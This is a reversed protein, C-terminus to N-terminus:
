FLILLGILLAFQLVIIVPLGIMFKKHLTKHRIMLMTTLMFIEGGLAACLLLRAESVRGSPNKKAAVKDYITIVIAVLSILAFYVYPFYSCIFEILRGM